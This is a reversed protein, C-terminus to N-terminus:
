SASIEEREKPLSIALLVSLVSMAAIVVYVPVFTQTITQSTGGALNGIIGGVGLTVNAVSFIQTGSLRSPMKAIYGPVLGFIPYFALAFAVGSFLITWQRPVLILLGCAVIVLAYTLALTWRIGIKDALSGILFGSFMGIFGILTWVQGTLEVGIGLEDRLYPSLFSQFPLTTFGNLFTIAWIMLVWPEASAFSRIFGGGAAAEGPQSPSESSKTTFLGARQFALLAIAVFGCTILGVTIYVGQWNGNALFVPVLLGNIFVGYSTGSSILGLAKGRHSYPVSRAVLEVIPVYASAATGGLVTLLAGVVVINAIAPVALLCAACLAASLLAVAAGGIRHALFAGLLAFVMFGAQASGTIVGAVGYDFSLTQRIDPLLAAFLYMGFGYTAAVFSTLCLTVVFPILRASPPPAPLTLDTM